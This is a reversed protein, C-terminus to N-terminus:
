SYFCTPNYCKWFHYWWIGYKFDVLHRLMFNNFNKIKAIKKLMMQGKVVFVCKSQWIGSITKQVPYQYLFIFLAFCLNFFCTKIARLCFFLFSLKSPVMSLNAKFLWLLGLKVNEMHLPVEMLSKIFFDSKEATSNLNHFLM